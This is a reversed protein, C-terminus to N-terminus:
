ELLFTKGTERYKIDLLMDGFKYAKLPVESIDSVTPDLTLRLVQEPSDAVYLVVNLEPNIELAQSALEMGVMDSLDLSILLTKYHRTKLNNLASDVSTVNDVRIKFYSFMRGIADLIGPNSDVALIGPDKM